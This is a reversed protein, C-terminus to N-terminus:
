MKEFLPTGIQVLSFSNPISTAAEAAQYENKVAHKCTKLPRSHRSIKNTHVREGSAERDTNCTCLVYM